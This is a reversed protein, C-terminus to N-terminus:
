FGPRKRLVVCTSNQVCHADTCVKLHEAEQPTVEDLMPKAFGLRTWTDPEQLDFPLFFPEGEPWDDPRGCAASNCNIGTLLADPECPMTDKSLIAPTNVCTRRKDPAFVFISPFTFLTDVPPRALSGEVDSDVSLAACCVARTVASAAAPGGSTSAARQLLPRRRGITVRDDPHGHFPQM